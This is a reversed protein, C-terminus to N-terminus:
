CKWYSSFNITMRVTIFQANGFRLIENHTQNDVISRKLNRDDACAQNVVSILTNMATDWAAQKTTTAQEATTYKELVYLDMTYGIDGLGNRLLNQSAQGTFPIQLFVLESQNNSLKNLDEAITGFLFDKSLTTCANEFATVINSLM